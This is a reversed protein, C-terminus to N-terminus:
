VFSHGPLGGISGDYLCSLDSPHCVETVGGLGPGHGQPDPVM